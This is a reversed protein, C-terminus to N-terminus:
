VREIIVVDCKENNIFEFFVNLHYRYAPIKSQAHAGKM